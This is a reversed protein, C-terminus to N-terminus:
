FLEGQKKTGVFAKKEGDAFQLTIEGQPLAAASTFITDGSKVIAFGRKLVHNVDLHQLQSAMLEVRQAAQELKREMLPTLRAMVLQVRHSQHTLQQVIHSPTLKASLLKVRQAARELVSPLAINLRTALEDVRQSALGLLNALSPLGRAVGTLREQSFQLKRHLGERMRLGHDEVLVMLEERVPVAMEAAATPTPARMDSAYDILTTDTEHGVASILPINSAAAARVVIEENFCWLDEISGGGRAVILLDPKPSFNQFGEIAMAIQEAAGQGQVAVPWVIVHSPFRDSIRHLIDRIVAGTPSTIVAIVRPLYPLPKKRAADFLGEAALQQKRKELQAMLAGIGAPEISEIVLQYKSSGPYTTLRGTAIVELGAEPKHALKQFTGKWCVADLVAKDDKMTFYAHGSSANVSIKSVEGRVRVQGFTDEVVRKIHGAIESVSYEPQNHTFAM